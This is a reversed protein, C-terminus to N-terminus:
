ANNSILLAFLVKDNEVERQTLIYLENRHNAEFCVDNM